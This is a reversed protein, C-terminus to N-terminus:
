LKHSSSDSACFLHDLINSGRTSKKVMQTMLCYPIHRNSKFICNQCVADESCVAPAFHFTLLQNILASQVIGRKRQEDSRDVKKSSM